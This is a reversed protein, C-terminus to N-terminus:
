INMKGSFWIWSNASGTILYCPAYDARNVPLHANDEGCRNNRLARIILNVTTPNEM